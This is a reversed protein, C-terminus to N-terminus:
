EQIRFESTLIRFEVNLIRFEQFYNLNDKFIKIKMIYIQPLHTTNKKCHWAPSWPPSPNVSPLGTLFYSLLAGLIRYQDTKSAFLSSFIHMKSSFNCLFFPRTYSLLARAVTKPAPFVIIPRPSYSVCTLFQLFLVFELTLNHFHFLEAGLRFEGQMGRDMNGHIGRDGYEELGSHRHPRM